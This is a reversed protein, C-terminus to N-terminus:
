NNIVLNISVMIIDDWIWDCFFKVFLYTSLGLSAVTAGSIVLLQKPSPPWGVRLWSPAQVSPMYERLGDRLYALDWM